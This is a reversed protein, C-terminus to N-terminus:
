NTAQAARQQRRPNPKWLPAIQEANWADYAAKLEKLKEPQESSLDKAEGIDNALNILRPTTRTSARPSSSGTARASRGSSASAGTSRRTRGDVREQRHPLADPRRRRAELGARGEGGAAAIARRCSTSSSSRSKTSRAPRSRAKGSCCFPVRVGGESTTAKFGRLPGNKSTTSPTPGGNDSFFFILTNEEQGMSACRRSCARRRRRGDGVDDRRLHPAERGRHERLPRSVEADGAAARAPRQVAPLPLVAQGEAQAIWDVARDAYADTTYFNEDKVPRSRTRRSQSDVFNPPNFFPTNAVTGYFEDFGRKMPLFEPPGGLHWKGIAATAYGLAKLRDAITTETLPLGFEKGGAGGGGNFEHGFRTQYRGTMLGARTPSCYPGSVYGNTFRVGNKAISDIHPTPIDKNDGPLRVRRLRRRRLPLRHHQAEYGGRSTTGVDRCAVPLAVPSLDHTRGHLSDGKYGPVHSIEGSAGRILFGVAAEVDAEGQDHLRDDADGQDDEDKAAVPLVHKEGGANDRQHQDRHNQRRYWTKM